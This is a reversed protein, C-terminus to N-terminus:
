ALKRREPRVKDNSTERPNFGRASDPLGEPCLVMRFGDKDERWDSSGCNLLEAPL